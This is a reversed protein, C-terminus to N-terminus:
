YLNRMMFVFFPGVFVLSDIRDYVGGHGPILNSSDKIGLQRKFKSEILDGLQALASILFFSLIILFSIRGFFAMSVITAVLVAFISGGMAGEITKKPSISPWLKNRGFRRGFFWAGTDVSFNLFLLFIMWAQWSGSQLLSSISVLPFLFFVGCLFSYRKIFNITKRKEMSECFIYLLLSLNIIMAILTCFNFLAPAQNIFNFYSYGIGFSCMAILYTPSKRKHGLMNSTFEDVILLGVAGLFIAVGKPGFLSFIFLAGLICLASIVRLATNNM